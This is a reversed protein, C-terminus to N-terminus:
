DSFYREMISASVIVSGLMEAQDLVRYIATSTCLSYLVPSHPLPSAQTLIVHPFRKAGLFVSPSCHCGLGADTMACYLFIIKASFPCLFSFLFLVLSLSLFVPSHLPPFPSPWTLPLENAFWARASLDIELQWHTGPTLLTILKLGARWNYMVAEDLSYGPREIPASPPFLLRAAPQSRACVCVQLWAHVHICAGVYKCVCNVSLRTGVVRGKM